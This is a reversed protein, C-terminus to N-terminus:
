TELKGVCGPYVYCEAWRDGICLDKHGIDIIGDTSMVFSNFYCSKSGLSLYQLLDPPVWIVFGQSSLIRGDPESSWYPTYSSSGELDLQAGARWIRIINADKPLSDVPSEELGAKVPNSVSIIESGGTPSGVWYFRESRTVSLEFIINTTQADIIYITDYSAAIIQNSCPSVGVYYVRSIQKLIVSEDFVGLDWKRISGDSNGSVIYKGDHSFAVSEIEVPDMNGSLVHLSMGTVSDRVRITSDAAASAIRAGDPSYVVSCAPGTHGHYLQGSISGAEISWVIITSDDSGSCFHTGNPSFSLCKVSNNHGKLPQTIMVGTLVNWIQVTFDSISVALYLGQSSPAISGIAKPDPKEEFTHSITTGTHLESIVFAGSPSSSVFHSCDPSFALPGVSIQSATNRALDKESTRVDWIRITRDSSCSVIRTGDPSFLVSRVWDAHRHISGPHISGPHISATHIDWLIISRDTSGGGSVIQTGDPSFAIAQIEGKHGKFPNGVTSGTQVNWIRITRDNSCSAVQSGDPSFAIRNVSRTHSRLPKAVAIGTFADWLRVTKDHSGSAILRADSSFAVSYVPGSHGQLPGFVIGGSYTDWVIVTRDGSGSVIRKGDPSFAVSWIIGTHKRLPGTAINGTHTDWIIVTKDDSGSAVLTRDPSFSVSNVDATHGQFAVIVAGTHIDYIHISGNEIGAVILDGGPSIAISYIASPANWVALLDDDQQTISVNALGQTRKRYH